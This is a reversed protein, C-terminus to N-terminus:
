SKQGPLDIKPCIKSWDDLPRSKYKWIKDVMVSRSDIEKHVRLNIPRSSVYTDAYSAPQFLMNFSIVIMIIRTPINKM